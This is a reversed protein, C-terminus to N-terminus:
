LTPILVVVGNIHAKKLFCFKLPFKNSDDRPHIFTHHLKPSSHIDELDLHKQPCCRILMQSYSKPFCHRLAQSHTIDLYPSSLFWMKLFVNKQETVPHPISYHCALRKFHSSLCLFQGHPSTVQGPSLPLLMDFDQLFPSFIMKLALSRAQTCPLKILVISGKTFYKYRWPQSKKKKKSNCNSWRTTVEQFLLSM